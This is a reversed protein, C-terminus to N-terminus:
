SDYNELNVRNFIVQWVKLNGDKMRKFIIINNTEFPISDGGKAPYYTGKVRGQTLVIDHYSHLTVIKHIMIAHGYSAEVELVKRLEAKNTIARSGQAMHVVDDAYVSMQADIDLKYYDDIIKLIAKAKKSDEEVSYLAKDPAKQFGSVTLAVLIIFLKASRKMELIM